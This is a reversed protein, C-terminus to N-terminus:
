GAMLRELRALQTRISGDYVRGETEVTVGGLLSEDVEARDLVKRGTIKEFTRRIASRDADALATASRVVARVRGLARDQQRAFSDRIAPLQDLRDNEALVGVFRGLLTERGIRDVLARALGRRQSDSMAGPALLAPDLSEVAAALEALGTGIEDANGGEGALEFLARGYRRGIAGPTV